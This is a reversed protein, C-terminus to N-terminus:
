TIVPLNEGKQEIENVRSSQDQEKLHFFSVIKLITMANSAM